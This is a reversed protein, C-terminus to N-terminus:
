SKNVKSFIKADVYFTGLPVVSALLSQGTTKWDWNQQFKLRFVFYIYLIFLWGHLMGVIKVAEPMNMIYKLPMAICLLVIFSLGELFAVTRLRGIPTRLFHQKM